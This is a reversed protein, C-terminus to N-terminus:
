KRKRRALALGVIGSGLLLLTGPEPVPAPNASQGSRSIKVVFDNFDLDGGGRLDEFGILIERNLGEYAVMHQQANENRSSDSYFVGDPSLLYFGFTDTGLVERIWGTTMDFTEGVSTGGNFIEIKRDNHYLGFTNIERFDSEVAVITM